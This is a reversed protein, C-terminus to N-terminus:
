AVSHETRAIIEDQVGPHLRVFFASFGAVRVVLDKHREPHKRADKLVAADVCNFQIHNGDLDFYGKILAKLAANGEETRFQDPNLKVNLHTSNYAVADQSAAASAVLVSPGKEDSGPTASLSGDTLATGSKRGTPTAGTLLGYYNYTSKSYADPKAYQGLFNNGNAAFADFATKYVAKAIDEAYPDNNGHKPAAILKKQILEYGVFDAKLADKIEKLTLEKDDYVLKKIAALSNAADIGTAFVFATASFDSGGNWMDIGKELCGSTLASRFPLQLNKANLYLYIEASKHALRINRYTQKEFAEYFKEYTTLESLKGTKEGVEYGTRPDIGNNLVLEIAKVLNFSSEMLYATKGPIATSVCGYVGTSRADELTAGYRSYADLSRQVLVNGNMFQPMGVGTRVLEFAKNLFEPKLKDHYILALPPQPLLLGKQAELILYDVDATADSGDPAYGGISITQATDGSQGLAMREGYFYSIDNLKVFFNQLLFVAEEETIDGNKLDQKYYPDLVHGVFGQSAGCGVQELELALHTFYHSQLAEWFNRAPKEPVRKTVEAIKLLQAKRLPDTEKKALDKALNSFRKAYRVIAKLEILVAEYFDFKDRNEIKYDLSKYRKEVEKIISDLGENVVRKFDSISVGSPADTNDSFVGAKIYERYNIGLSEKVRNEVNFALGHKQWYKDAEDVLEKKDEDIGFPNDNFLWDTRWEPYIYFSGWEGALSGVILNDDIYIKKHDLLYEFVRARQIISPFDKYEEYVIKLFELREYDIKQERNVVKDKLKKVQEKSVNILRESM